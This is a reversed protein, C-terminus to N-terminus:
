LVPGLCSVRSHGSGRRLGCSEQPGLLLPFISGETGPTLTLVGVSMPCPYYRTSRSRPGDEPSKWTIRTDQDMRTPSDSVRPVGNSETRGFCQNVGM